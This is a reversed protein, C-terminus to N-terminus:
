ILQSVRYVKYQFNQNMKKETKRLAKWSNSGRGESFLVKGSWDMSRISGPSGLSSCGMSGMWWCICYWLGLWFFSLGWKLNWLPCPPDLHWQILFVHHGCTSRAWAQSVSLNAAPRVGTRWCCATSVTSSLSSSLPMSPLSSFGSKSRCLSYGSLSLLSSSSSSNWSRVSIVGSSSLCNKTDSTCNALSKCFQLTQLLAHWVTTFPTQPVM